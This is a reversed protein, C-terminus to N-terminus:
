EPIPLHAEDCADFVLTSPFKRSALGQDTAHLRSSPSDSGHGLRGKRFSSIRGVYRDFGVATRIGGIVPPEAVDVM